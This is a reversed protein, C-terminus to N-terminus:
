PSPRWRGDLTVASTSTRVMPRTDWSAPSTNPRVAPPTPASPDTLSARLRGLLVPSVRPVQVLRFTRFSTLSIKRRASLGEQPFSACPKSLERSRFIKGFPLSRRRRTTLLPPRRRRFKAARSRRRPPPPPSALLSASRRRPSRAVVVRCHRSPLLDSLCEKTLSFSWASSRGLSNPLKPQCRRLARTVHCLQEM